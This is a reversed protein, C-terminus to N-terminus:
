RYHSKARRDARIEELRDQEERYNEREEPTMKSMKMREFCGNVRGEEDPEALYFVYGGYEKRFEKDIYEFGGYYQLVRDDSAKVAIFEENRVDVWLGGYSARQDLGLVSIDRVHESQLVLDEAGDAVVENLDNLSEITMSNKEM